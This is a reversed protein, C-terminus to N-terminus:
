YRDAAAYGTAASFNSNPSIVALGDAKTSTYWGYGFGSAQSKAGFSASYGDLNLDVDVNLDFNNETNFTIDVRDNEYFSYYSTSGQVQVSEVITEIHNLDRIIM